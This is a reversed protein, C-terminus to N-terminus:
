KDTGRAPQSVTWQAIPERDRWENRARDFLAAFDRDRMLQDFVQRALSQGAASDSAYHVGAFERHTAIAQARTALAQARAPMLAGLLASVLHAQSAHGSPYAPHKPVAIVPQIDPELFSPRVRDDRQKLALVIISLDSYAARLARATDPFRRADLYEELRYDGFTALALDAEDDIARRIAATRQRTLAVLHALEDRVQASSNAPPPPIIITRRWDKLYRPARGAMAELEPDWEQTNSFKLSDLPRQGRAATGVPGAILASLALVLVPGCRRASMAKYQDSILSLKLNFSHSGARACL